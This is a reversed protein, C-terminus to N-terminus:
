NHGRRYTQSPRPIGSLETPIEGVVDPGALKGEALSSQRTLALLEDMRSNVEHHYLRVERICAAIATLISATAVLLAVLDFDM